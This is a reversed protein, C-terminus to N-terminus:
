SRNRQNHLQIGVNNLLFRVPGLARGYPPPSDERADLWAVLDGWPHSRSLPGALFGFAGARRHDNGLPFPDTGPLVKFGRRAAEKVLGPRGLLQLRGGNDCVALSGPAHEQLAKRVLAGRAGLWKGFGWPLCALAGAAQVERLTAAFPRGDAFERTTGLAAVELGKECRVQRGCVVAIWADGREAVLSQPEGAVAQIRWDGQSPQGRLAEFVREGGAQNLLLVGLCGSDQLGNAQFNAAAADLTMAVRDLSHFHVHGDVPLMPPGATAASATETNM